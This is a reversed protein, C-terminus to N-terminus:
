GKLDMFRQLLCELLLSISKQARRILKSEGAGPCLSM